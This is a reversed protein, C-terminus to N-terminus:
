EKGQLQKLYQLREAPKLAKWAKVDGALQALGPVAKATGTAGATGANRSRNAMVKKMDPKLEKKEVAETAKAYGKDHALHYLEEAPNLGQAAFQAAMQLLQNNVAQTIQAETASPYLTSISDAIKAELFSAAPNYDEVTKSFHSEYTKFEQIASNVLKDQSHQQITPLITEKVSSLENRLQRIEWEKHAAWQTNRDPEPDDQKVEKVEPKPAARLAANEARLAELEQKEAAKAALRERRHDAPTKKEEVQEVEDVSEEEPTDDVQEVEEELQEPEEIEEEPTEIDATQAEKLDKLEALLSM